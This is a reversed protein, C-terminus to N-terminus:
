NKDFIIYLYAKNENLNVYLISKLTFKNRYFITLILISYISVFWLFLFFFQSFKFFVITLPFWLGLIILEFIKLYNSMIM